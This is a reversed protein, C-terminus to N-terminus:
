AMVVAARRGNTRYFEELHQAIRRGVQPGSELSYANITITVPAATAAGDLHLKLGADVEGGIMGPLDGTFGQLSRRVAGYSSELGRLFGGMILRGNDTLLTRDRKAPGKWDPIWDTLGSFFGKVGEWMSQLGDLLGQLISRGADWLLSGLDGLASLIKQPLEKVWDVLANFKEVAGDKLATLKEVVWDRATQFANSLWEAAQDAAEGPATKIWEVVDSITTKIGNWIEQVKTWLDSFFGKVTEIANSIWEPVTVTFWEVVGAVASKIAEWIATVANRFGECKMWLIALVGIVVMIAAVILGIPNLMMVANLLTQSITVAKIKTNWVTMIGQAVKIAANVATIISVTIKYAKWAAIAILVAAAMMKVKGTNEAVWHGISMLAPVVTEKIFGGLVRLVALLNDKVEIAFEKVKPYVEDWKEKMTKLAPVVKEQIWKHVSEFAPGLHDALWGAAESVAPLLYGGLQASFDSIKAKAVQTKHALTDQESNFKGHFDSTQQMILSLTAAQQAEDTLAGGVKQFGLRAAEADISAQKLSVGYREIPDREGKLASSLARVADATSGGFAASLDAGVAILDNTKGALDDLSTGGNKLQTAMVTALENYENRSLGVSDAAAKAYAHVTAANEKFVDDITGMSQELDSAAKVAVGAVATAAAAGLKTVRVLEHGLSSLGSKLKSFGTTDGLDKMARKFRRTDALISVKVQKGAM